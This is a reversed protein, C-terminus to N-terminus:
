PVITRAALFGVPFALLAAGTTGLLAIALTQGLATLLLFLYREPSPPVMLALFRGMAVMGGFLRLPSFDLWWLGFLFLATMAAVGLPLGLRRHLPPATRA